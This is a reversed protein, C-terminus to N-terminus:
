TQPNTSNSSFNRCQDLLEQLDSGSQTKVDELLLLVKIRFVGLQKETLNKVDPLLSLLFMKRPDDLKPKKNQLWSVLAKDVDNTVPEKKLTKTRPTKFKRQRIIEPGVEIEIEEAKHFDNDDDSREEDDAMPSPIRRKDIQITPNIYPVVFQM